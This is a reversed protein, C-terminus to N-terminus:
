PDDVRDGPIHGVGPAPREEIRSAADPQQRRGVDLEAEVHGARIKAGGGDLAGLRRADLSPEYHRGEGRQSQLM